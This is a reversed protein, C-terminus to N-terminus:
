FSNVKEEWGTEALEYIYDPSLGRKNWYDLEQETIRLVDQNLDDQDGNEFPLGNIL